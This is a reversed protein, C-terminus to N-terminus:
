TKCSSCISLASNFSLSAAMGLYHVNTDDRDCAFTLGPTQNGRSGSVKKHVDCIADITAELFVCTEWYQQAGLGKLGQLNHQYHSAPM